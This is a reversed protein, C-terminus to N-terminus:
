KFYKEILLKITLYIRYARKKNGILYQEKGVVIYQDICNLMEKNNSDRLSRLILDEANPGYYLSSTIEDFSASSFLKDSVTTM